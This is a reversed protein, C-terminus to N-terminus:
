LTQWPSLEPHRLADRIITLARRLTDLDSAASICIRVAQPAPESGVCFAEAPTVRVQQRALQEILTSVRQGAPLSLWLYFGGPRASFDFEGLLERALAHRRALERQQWQLLRDADGSDIWRCVLGAILPPPMWSQTRIAAAVRGQLAPPVRMVGSRLGGGLIKSISFLLLTREPALQYLPTGRQEAPLHQVADEILWFDHQRALAVLAERRAESLRATTPNHHDPMLYLARFPQREVRRALAEVDLGEADFPLSVTRIALQQAASILGPYSLAEAALREGPNLLSSLALFIGNMGGQNILLEEAAVPLGLQHMWCAFGDRHSDLGGEAQYDIADTLAQPDQQVAALARQLGAQREGCPPPLSLSLDIMDDHGTVHRFPAERRERVYTGSGVRAEVLGHNEVEGYARTVTGLTVGLADALRRQPPLRTGPALEGSEIALEIAETLQRYRPGEGSLRPIWITM